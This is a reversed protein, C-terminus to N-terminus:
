IQLIKNVTDLNKYTHIEDVFFFFPINNKETIKSLSLNKYLKVEDLDEDFQFIKINNEELVEFFAKM